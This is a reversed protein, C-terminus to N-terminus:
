GIKLDGGRLNKLNDTTCDIVTSPSVRPLTGSDLLLDPAISAQGFQALLDEISYPNDHGHINASTTSLPTGFGEALMQAFPHSSLRVGASTGGEPTVFLIDKTLLPLIITLPGPLHEVALTEARPNWIVYERSQEFSHFLGSVPKDHPRNKIAFLKTVADKNRLDCALGYCTETAHAIVGGKALIALATTLADDTAPLIQM